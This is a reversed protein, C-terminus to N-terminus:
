LDQIILVLVAVAAIVPLLPALEFNQTEVDKPPNRYAGNPIVIREMQAFTARLPEISGFLVRLPETTGFMTKLAKLEEEM